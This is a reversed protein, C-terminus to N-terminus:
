QKVFVTSKTQGSENFIGLNWSQTVSFENSVKKNAALIM